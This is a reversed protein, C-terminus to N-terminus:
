ISAYKSCDLFVVKGDENIVKSEGVVTFYAGAIVIVTGIMNIM